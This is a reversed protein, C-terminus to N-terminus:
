ESPNRLSMLTAEFHKPSLLEDDNKIQSLNEMSHSYIMSNRNAAEAMIRRTDERNLIPRVVVKEEMVEEEEQEENLKYLNNPSNRDTPSTSSSRNNPGATMFGNAPAEPLSKSKHRADTM